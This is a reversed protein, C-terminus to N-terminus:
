RLKPPVEGGEPLLQRSSSPLFTLSSERFHGGSVHVFPNLDNYSWGEAGNAAWEDFDVGINLIDLPHM